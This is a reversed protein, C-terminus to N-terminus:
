SSRRLLRFSWWIALAHPAIVPILIPLFFLGKRAIGEGFGVALYYLIGWGLSTGLGRLNGRQHLTTSGAFALLCVVVNMLPLSLKSLLDVRFRRLNTIGTQKFRTILLRLQGYRMTEPRIAPQSFSQPIVPYAILREVFPEPEGQLIGKPGVRYITGHLLLWGHPTWIARNAYLSKTPRNQWDHELVTLDSLEKAKLNLSRAHYLRNFSDMAAVNEFSSESEGRKFAEQRIREYVQTSHPVLRENVFFVLLSALWGVFVFPISARILSTGSANMALFEQNRSLRMSIFACSLLLALPAARVFIIPIFSLYYQWLIQTSIHYRLIEDLHEFLDILCSLFIFVVLCWVWVPVVQRAVYRDLLRM